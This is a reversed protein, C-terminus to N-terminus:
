VNTGNFYGNLAFRPSAPAVRFDLTRRDTKYGVNIEGTSSASCASESALGLRLYAFPISSFLRRLLLPWFRQQIETGKFKPTASVQASVNLLWSFGADINDHEGDSPCLCPPIGWTVDM